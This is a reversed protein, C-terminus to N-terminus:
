HRVHLAQGVIDLLMQEYSSGGNLKYCRYFYGQGLGPILNAELFFPVGDEDMKIDIRGYGSAGLANFAALALESVLGKVTDNQIELVLEKDALKEDFGLVAFNGNIKEVVIEVPNIQFTDHEFDQIIGVTYEKGSLYKEILSQTQQNDHISQVKAEYMKFNHVLSQADIGRSDGEFLPKIFLPYDIFIESSKFQQPSAIFSAATRLGCDSVQKKAKSKDYEFELARGSSGMYKIHNDDLFDAFWIKNSANRKISDECFGLYKIGSIVLDPNKVAIDNLEMENHIVSIKVKLYHRSLVDKISELVIQPMLNFAGIPTTVIEIYRDIKVANRGSGPCSCTVCRLAHTPSHKSQSIGDSDETYACKGRRTNEIQGSLLM